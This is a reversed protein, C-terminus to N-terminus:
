KVHVIKRWINTICTMVTKQALIMDSFQLILFIPSSSNSNAFSNKLLEDKCLSEDFGAFCPLPIQILLIESIDTEGKIKWYTFWTISMVIKLDRLLIDKLEKKTYHRELYSKDRKVTIYYYDDHYFCSFYFTNLCCWRNCGCLQEVKSPICLAVSKSNPMKYYLKIVPVRCM